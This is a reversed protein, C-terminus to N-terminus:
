HLPLLLFTRPGIVTSMVLCSMGCLCKFFNWKQWVKVLLYLLAEGALSSPVRRKLKCSRWAIPTIKIKETGVPLAEAMLVMWAGQTGDSVLGDCDQSDPLSGVGGADSGAIFSMSFPNMKWLILPRQATSRLHGVMRNMLHIDEVTGQHLRSAIISCMGAAEPRTEKAVWSIRYLLSRAASFEHPLLSAHRNKKRGKPLQVPFIQELIYKAQTVEIRDEKIAIERGAYSEDGYGFKGFHFREKLKSELEEQYQPHVAIIFDDVELLIMALIKSNHDRKVFWCSELLCQRFGLLKLFNVVTQRWARPADLLGYVPVILEILQQSNLGLGSCSEAYLPGDPRHLPDSQCFANKVDAFALSLDLGLGLMLFMYISATQPTPSFTQLSSMDVDQHGHVCWRSKAKSQNLGPIPKWRRVMRSSMIRDSLTERIRLSEEVSLVKVANTAKIAEWELKDSADFMHKEEPTLNSLSIENQSGAVFVPAELMGVDTWPDDLGEVFFPRCVAPESPTGFTAFTSQSFSIREVECTSEFDAFLGLQTALRRGERYGRDIAQRDRARSRERESTQIRVRGQRGSLQEGPTLPSPDVNDTSTRAKKDVHSTDSDDLAQTEDQVLSASSPMVTSQAVVEVTEPITPLPTDPTAPSLPEPNVIRLGPPHTLGQSASSHIPPQVIDTVDALVDESPPGERAVDVASSRRGSRVELLIEKLGADQAISEGLLESKLATRLQDSSCKWLRSRMGVWVTKGSQLLVTGPGVWRNRPLLIDSTATKTTSIRWVYVWQGPNWIKQERHKANAAESIRDKSHRELAMQRARHRVHFRRAFEMAPSAELSPDAHLDALGIEGLEEDALLEHPVRPNQGFAIQLPTFGGRHYWKNKATALGILFEELDAESQVVGQGAKLEQLVKEKIWGGHRECRGNQWPSQRDCVHHFIGHQELGRAFRAGFERGDDTVVIEPEFFFRIWSNQFTRWVSASDPTGTSIHHDADRVIALVQFNSGHDVMNLVPIQKNLFNLYFIDIGVVKNFIYTPPLAAKRRSKPMRQLDCTECSFEHRVYALVSTRVGAAQLVRLFQDRPPHSLNTHLKRVLQKESEELPESSDKKRPKETEEVEEEQPPDADEEEVGAVGSFQVSNLPICMPHLFMSSHDQKSMFTVKQEHAISDRLGKIVQECLEPPYQAALAPLGHELPVHEHSGDCQFSSLRQLMIRDNSLFRTRKRSLGDPHVQLGLMCQDVDAFGVNPLECIFHTSSLNWSSATQPHEILFRRGRDSQYKAVRMTFHWMSLGEAIISEKLKPDMRDWNINQLISFARCIPSLVVLYPSDAELKDWFLQCDKEDFFNWGTLVDFYSLSPLRLGHKQAHPSMRNPNFVEMFDTKCKQWASRVPVTSEHFVPRSMEPVTNLVVKELEEQIEALRPTSIQSMHQVEEHKLLKHVEPSFCRVHTANEQGSLTKVDHSTCLLYLREISPDEGPYRYGFDNAVKPFVVFGPTSAASNAICQEWLCMRLNVNRVDGGVRRFVRSSSTSSKSSSRFGDDCEVATSSNTRYEADNRGDTCDAIPFISTAASSIAGTWQGDGADDGGGRRSDDHRVTLGSRRSCDSSAHMGSKASKVASVEEKSQSEGSHTSLVPSGLVCRVSDMSGVSQRGKERVERSSSVAVTGSELSRESSCPISEQYSATAFTAEGSNVDFHSSRAHCSAGHWAVQDSRKCQAHCVGDSILNRDVQGSFEQCDVSGDRSQHLGSGQQDIGTVTGHEETGLDFGLGLVMYASDVSAAKFSEPTLGAHEALLRSPVLTADFLREPVVSIVRHGTPLRRMKVFNSSGAFSMVDEHLDIRTKLHELLGVSLLQPISDELIKVKVFGLRPGVEMFIIAFCKASASGGVGSAPNPKEKLVCAQWGKKQLAVQLQDFAAAGILDEGAGPDIIAEGAEPGTFSAWSLPSSISSGKMKIERLAAITAELNENWWAPSTSSGASFSSFVFASAKPPGGDPPNTCEKAWHGKIGCRACKTVQKLKQIGLKNRDLGRKNIPAPNTESDPNWRDFIQRDKKIAKKLQQSEKWTRRRHAANNLVAFVEASDQESLDLRDLEQLIIAEDSSDLDSDNESEVAGVEQFVPMSMAAPKKLVRDRPVEMELLARKVTQYGNSGRTLTRLNQMGQESLGAGEELITGKVESPLQLGLNEAASFQQSRRHVYQGLTEDKTRGSDFLAERAIRRKEVAEHQGSEIELVEIMLDLYSPGQLQHDTLHDFKAQLEWPFSRLVKEARRHPKVDTLADWRRISKRYLRFYQWGPWSPPDALGPKDAAFGRGGQMSGSTQFHHPHQPSGFLMQRVNGDTDAPRVPQDLDDRKPLPGAGSPPSRRSSRPLDPSGRPPAWPDDSQLPDESAREPRVDSSAAGQPLRLGNPLVTAYSMTGINLRAVAIECDGM